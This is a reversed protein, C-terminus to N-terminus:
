SICLFILLNVKTIENMLHERETNLRSLELKLADISELDIEEKSEGQYTLPLPYHVRSFLVVM